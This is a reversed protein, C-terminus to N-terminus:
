AAEVTIQQITAGGAKPLRIELIGDRHTAHARGPAIPAPLPISRSCTPSRVTLTDESLSVEIAGPVTGPVEARFVFETDTEWLVPEDRFLPPRCTFIEEFLHEMSDRLTVSEETSSWRWRSM